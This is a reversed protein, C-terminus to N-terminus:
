PNIKIAGSAAIAAQLTNMADTVDSALGQVAGLTLTSISVTVMDVGVASDILQTKTYDNAEKVSPYLGGAM